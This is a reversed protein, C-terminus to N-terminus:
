SIFGSVFRKWYPEEPQDTVRYPPPDYDIIRIMCFRYSTTIRPPAKLPAAAAMRSRRSQGSSRTRITSFAMAKSSFTPSAVVSIDAM